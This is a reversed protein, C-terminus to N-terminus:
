QNRWEKPAVRGVPSLTWAIGIQTATCAWVAICFTAGSALVTNGYKDHFDPTRKQHSQRALKQPISQVTLTTRAVPFM